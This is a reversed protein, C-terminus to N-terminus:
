YRQSLKTTACTNKNRTHGMDKKQRQAFRPHTKQAEGIDIQKSRQQKQNKGPMTKSLYNNDLVPWTDTSSSILREYNQQKNNQKHVCGMSNNLILKTWCQCKVLPLCINDQFFGPQAFFSFLLSGALYAFFFCLLCAWSKCLSLLFVHSVCSVSFGTCGDLEGLFVLNPLIMLIPGM